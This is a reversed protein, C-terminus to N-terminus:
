AYRTDVTQQGPFARAQACRPVQWGDPRAPPRGDASFRRARGACVLRGSARGPPQAAMEWRRRWEGIDGGCAAAYALTVQLSPFSLGSAATSLVSPSFLATQALDRYTPYGAAARLQRLQYAFSSLPGEGPDLPREPRGPRRQNNGQVTM